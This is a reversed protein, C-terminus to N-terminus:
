GHGEEDSVTPAFVWYDFDLDLTAPGVVEGSSVTSRQTFDPRACRVAALAEDPGSRARQM